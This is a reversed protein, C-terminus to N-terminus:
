TPPLAPPDFRAEMAGPDIRTLVHRTWPALPMRAHEGPATFRFRALEQGDAVPEGDVIRCAFVTMVYQVRDGNGYEVVFESGGFVGLISTAEVEVGLEERMERLVADAPREGPDIAGGPATWWGTGVDEALLVRGDEDTIIATVSPLVLLDHGVHGRLWKLYSSM